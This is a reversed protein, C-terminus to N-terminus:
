FYGCHVTPSLLKQWISYQFEQQNQGDLNPYSFLPFSVQESLCLSLFTPPPPPFLLWSCTPACSVFSVRRSTPHGSLVKLSWFCRFHSIWNDSRLINDPRKVQDTHTHTHTHTHTFTHTTPLNQRKLFQCLPKTECKTFTSYPTLITPLQCLNPRLLGRLIQLVRLSPNSKRYLM